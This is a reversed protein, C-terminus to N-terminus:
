IVKQCETEGDQSRFLAAKMLPGLRQQMLAYTRRRGGGKEPLGKKEQETPRLFIRYGLVTGNTGFVVVGDSAVMGALLAELAQLSALSQANDAEVAARHAGALDLPTALWVGDSLPEPAQAAGPAAHAGLLTGHCHQLTDALLRVLYPEAKTRQEDPLASTAASVFTKVNAAFVPESAPASTFAATFTENKANRLEVVLRGRNRVLIAPSTNASEVMAEEASLAFSHMRSRFVGYEAKNDGTVAVYVAWGRVALTACDKLIREAGSSIQAAGLIVRRTCPSLSAIADVSPLVFM